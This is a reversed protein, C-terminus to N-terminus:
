DAAAESRTVVVKSISETNTLADPPPSLLPADLWHFCLVRQWLPYTNQMTRPDSIMGLAQQGNAVAVKIQWVSASSLQTAPGFPVASRSPPLTIHKIPWRHWVYRALDTQIKGPSKDYAARLAAESSEGRNVLDVFTTFGSAYEPSLMLMHVLSGADAAFQNEGTTMRFKRPRRSNSFLSAIDAGSQREPNAAMMGLDIRYKGIIAEDRSIYMTSYVNAMGEELWWPLHYAHELVFHAYEYRILDDKQYRLDTVIMADKGELLRTSFASSERYGALPFYEWISKIAMVMVTSPLSAEGVKFAWYRRADELSRLISQNTKEDFSSYLNFHPSSEQVWHTSARVCPTVLIQLLIVITIRVNM